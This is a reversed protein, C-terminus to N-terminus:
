QCNPENDSSFVGIPVHFIAPDQGMKLFYRTYGTADIMAYYGDVTSITLAEGLEKDQEFFIRQYKPAKVEKTCLAFQM